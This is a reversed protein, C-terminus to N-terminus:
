VDEVNPSKMKSEQQQEDDKNKSKISPDVTPAKMKKQKPLSSLQTLMNQLVNTYPNSKTQRLANMANDMLNEPVNAEKLLSRQADKNNRQMQQTKMKMRLKKSLAEKSTTSSTSTNAAATSIQEQTSDM